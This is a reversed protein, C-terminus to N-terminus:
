AKATASEKTATADVAKAVNLLDKVNKNRMTDDLKTMARNYAVTLMDEAAKEDGNLAQTALDQVAKVFWPRKRMEEPLPAKFKAAEKVPVTPKEEALYKALAVIEERKSDHLDKMATEVAKMAKGLKDEKIAATVSMM